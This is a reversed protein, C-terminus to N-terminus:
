RLSEVLERLDSGNKIGELTAEFIPIGSYTAYDREWAIGKSERWGELTLIMFINAFRLMSRNHPMWFDFDRPLNYQVSMDHYHVIPSYVTWKEKTLHASAELTCLYRFQMVADSYHTYPSALYIYTM